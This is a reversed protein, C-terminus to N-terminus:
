RRFEAVGSLVTKENKVVKCLLFLGGGSFVVIFLLGCLAAVSHALDVRVIQSLWMITSCLRIATLGSGLAISVPRRACSEGTFYTKVVLLMIRAVVM